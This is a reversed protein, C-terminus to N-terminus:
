ICSSIMYNLQFLYPFNLIYINCILPGMGFRSTLGTLSNFAWVEFGLPRTFSNRRCFAKWWIENLFGRGGRFLKGTVARSQEARSKEETNDSMIALLSLTSSSRAWSAWRPSLVVPGLGVRTGGEDEEETERWLWEYVEWGNKRTQLDPPEFGGKAFFIFLLWRVPNIRRWGTLLSRAQSLVSVVWMHGLFDLGNILLANVFNM